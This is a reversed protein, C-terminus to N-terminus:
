WGLEPTMGGQAENNRGRQMSFHSMLIIGTTLLHSVVIHDADTENYCQGFIQLTNHDGYYVFIGLSDSFNINTTVASAKCLQDVCAYLWTERDQKITRTNYM